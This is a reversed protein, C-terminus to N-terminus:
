QVTFSLEKLVNGNADTVTVMWEGPDSLRKNAWTRWTSAKISLETSFTKEGFKWIVTIPESPGGTVRLWLYARDNIAFTSTEEVIERDVVDKGLKAMTIELKATEGEQACLPLSILLTCIAVFLLAHKM